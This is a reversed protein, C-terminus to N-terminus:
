ASKRIQRQLMAYHLIHEYLEHSYHLNRMISLQEEQSLSSIVNLADELHKPDEEAHIKLFLTSGHHIDKIEQYIERGAHVAVGELFLIYGLLSTGNEFAIRFYQSHYFAQTMPSEHFQNIPTGLRELDKLAVLDHKEEESLHHEFHRRIEANKLHPMAFGLLSTSHSVFFYTQALWESYFTKDRFANIELRSRFLNMVRLFDQQINM